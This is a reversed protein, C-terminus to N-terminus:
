GTTAETSGFSERSVKRFVGNVNEEVIEDIALNISNQLDGPTMADATKAIRALLECTHYGGVTDWALWGSFDEFPNHPNDITTLMYEPVSPTEGDWGTDDM